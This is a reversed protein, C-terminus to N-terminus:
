KDSNKTKQLKETIDIVNYPFGYKVQAFTRDKLLPLKADFYENFIIRFTNVPTITPYLVDTKVGPLYYANLISFKEELTSETAQRWDFKEVGTKRFQEPYPGEDSQLIIIPPTKSNALIETITNEIPTNVYSLQNKYNEKWTRSKEVYEPVYSGDANYIYPVHTLLSHMFIFKPGEGPATDRVAKLQELRSNFLSKRSNLAGICLLSAETECSVNQTLPALITQSLFLETFPSLLLKSSRFIYEHDALGKFKDDIPVLGFHYYTYGKSKLYNAVKNNDSLERLPTADQSYTGFKKAIDDLFNMNLSSYVSSTTFPYNAVSRDAIYFGKNKLFDTFQSNDYQYYKKLTNNAGYSDIILYYIDPLKATNIESTAANTIFDTYSKHIRNIQTTGIISAPIIVMTFSVINLFVIISTHKQKLKLALYTIGICLLVSGIIYLIPLRGIVKAIFTHSSQYKSYIDSGLVSNIVHGYSFFLMYLASTALASIKKQSVILNILGWLLLGFIVSGVLPSILQDITLESINSAFLQISPFVIFFFLYLPMQTFIYMM